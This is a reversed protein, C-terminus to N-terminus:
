PCAKYTTSSATVTGDKQVDCTENASFKVSTLVVTAGSQVMLAGHGGSGGHKIDVYSFANDNNSDSRFQFYRWDGAAPVSKASRITIRDDATGIARISGGKEAFFRGDAAIWLEVGKGITVTSHFHTQSSLRYPYGLDKWTGAKTMTTGVVDVLPEKVSSEDISLDEIVGAYDPHISLAAGEVHEFSVAQFKKVEGLELRLGKDAAHRFTTHDISIAAGSNLLVMGQEDGGYEVMAYSLRTANGADGRVNIYRWDGAAPTSKSSTITVKCDARGDAVLNGGKEVFLRRGLELRSGNRLTLTAGSVHFDVSCTMVQGDLTLPKTLPTDCEVRTLKTPCQGGGGGDGNGNGNGTDDGCGSVLAAILAAASLRAFTM